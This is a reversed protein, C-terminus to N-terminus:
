RHQQRELRRGHHDRQLEAARPEMLRCPEAQRQGREGHQQQPREIIEPPSDQSIQRSTERRIGMKQAYAQCTPAADNTEAESSRPAPIALSVATVSAPRSKMRSMMSASM